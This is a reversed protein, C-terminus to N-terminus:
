EMGIFREEVSQACTRAEMTDLMNESASTKATASIIPNRELALMGWHSAATPIRVVSESASVHIATMGPSTAFVASPADKRVNGSTKIGNNLEANAGVSVIGIASLTKASFWGKVGITSVIRARNLQSGTPLSIHIARAHHMPMMIVAHNKAM